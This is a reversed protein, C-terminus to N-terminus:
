DHKQKTNVTQNKKARRAKDRPGFKGHDVLCDFVTNKPVVGMHHVFDRKLTLLQPLPPLPAAAMLTLQQCVGAHAPLFPRSFQRREWPGHAIAREPAASCRLQGCSISQFLCCLQMLVGQLQNNQEGQIENGDGNNGALTRPPINLLLAAM